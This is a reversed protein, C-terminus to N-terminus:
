QELQYYRKPGDFFLLGAAVIAFGAAIGISILRIHEGIRVFVQLWEPGLVTLITFGGIMSLLGLVVGVALGVGIVTNIHSTSRNLEGGGVQNCLPSRLDLYIGICVYGIAFLISVGLLFLANETSIYQAPALDAPQYPIRMLLVTVVISLLIPVFVIAAKIFLQRKFSQPILKTHYINHGERTISSAAFSASLPLMIMMVFFSFGFVMYRSALADGMNRFSQWASFMAVRNVFFVILPTIVVLLLFQFTYNSSRLINASDKKLTAYLPSRQKFSPKRSPASFNGGEDMYTKKYNHGAVFYAVTMLAASIGLIAFFSWLATYWRTNILNAFLAQPFFANGARRINYEYEYLTNPFNDAETVAYMVNNIIFMYLFIAGVLGALYVLSTLLARGRMFQIVKMVPYIVLSAIFFPIIPVFMLILPIYLYFGWHMSTAIGFAIFIPLLVVAAFIIEFLYSVLIKSAFIQRHSLPLKLLLERDNNVDLTKVLNPILFLTQLIQFVLITFILFERSLDFRPDIGLGRLTGDTFQLALLYYVYVFVGFIALIALIITALKINSKVGQKKPLAVRAKFQLKILTSVTKM